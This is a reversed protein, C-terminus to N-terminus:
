TDVEAPEPVSRCGPETGQLDSSRAGMGEFGESRRERQSLPEASVVTSAKPRTAPEVSDRSASEPRRRPLRGPM